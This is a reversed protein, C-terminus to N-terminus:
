RRRGARSRSRRTASSARRPRRRHRGLQASRAAGAALGRRRAVRCCGTSRRRAARRSTTSIDAVACPDCRCDDRDIRRADAYPHYHSLDSSVVILTEPGGWLAISCRRGGRGADRRGVALPVLTFTGLVSQLFPLQVELSHEAAHAADSVVVQPLASADRIAAADLAVEGLPTAFRAAGRCRSGACRCAIRRDSCCSASSSTACRPSGRTPPLPWRARTSTARCAARDGGEAAPRPHEDRQCSVRAGAGGPPDAGRPYFSGAVAAPRVDRM